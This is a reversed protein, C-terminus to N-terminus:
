FGLTHGKNEGPAMNVGKQLSISPLASSKMHVTSHVSRVSLLGLVSCFPTSFGPRESVSCPVLPRRLLHAHEPHESTVPRDVAQM